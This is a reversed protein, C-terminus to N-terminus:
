PGMRPVCFCADEITPTPTEDAACGYFEASGSQDQTWTCERRCFGVACWGTEGATSECTTLTNTAEPCSYGWGASDDAVDTGCSALLALLVALRAAIM